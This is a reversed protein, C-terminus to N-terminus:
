LRTFQNFPYVKYRAIGEILSLSVPGIDRSDKSNEKNDGELWLHGLPVEVEIDKMHKWSWFKATEGEKNIVRKVLTHGQKYPNRVMVVEGVMPERIFSTTFCDLLILNNRDDLTPLM